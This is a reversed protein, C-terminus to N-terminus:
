SSTSGHDASEELVLAVARAFLEFSIIDEDTNKGCSQLLDNLMEDNPYIGM